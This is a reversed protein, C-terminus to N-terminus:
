TNPNQSSVLQVQIGKIEIAGGDPGSIETPLVKGVLTLFATPNLKSQMLLYEQGGAEQLAGLVMEKVSATLRNPTGKKRGGSKKGDLTAM